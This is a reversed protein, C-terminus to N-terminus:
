EHENMLDELKKKCDKCLRGRGFPLLIFMLLPEWWTDKLNKNWTESEFAICYPKDCKLGWSNSIEHRKVFYSLPWSCCIWITKLSPSNWGMRGHCNDKYQDYYIKWGIPLKM